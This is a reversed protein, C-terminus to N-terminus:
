NQKKNQQKQLKYKQYHLHIQELTIPLIILSIIILIISVVTKLVSIKPNTNIIMTKNMLESKSVNLDLNPDFTPDAKQKSEKDKTIYEDTMSVRIRKRKTLKIVFIVVSIIFISIIIYYIKSLIIHKLGKNSFIKKLPNDFRKVCEIKNEFNVVNNPNLNETHEDFISEDKHKSIESINLTNISNKEDTKNIIISDLEFNESQNYQKNENNIQKSQESQIISKNKQELNDSLSINESINENLKIPESQESQIIYKNKQELDQELNDSQSINKTLDNSVTNSNSFSSEDILDESTDELKFVTENNSALDINNTLIGKSFNINGFNNNFKREFFQNNFHINQNYYQKLNINELENQNTENKHDSNELENESSSLSINDFDQFNDTITM